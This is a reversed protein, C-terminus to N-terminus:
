GLFGVLYIHFGSSNCKVRQFSELRLFTRRPHKSSHIEEIILYSIILFQSLNYQLGSIMANKRRHRTQCSNGALLNFVRVLPTIYWVFTNKPSSPNDMTGLERGM